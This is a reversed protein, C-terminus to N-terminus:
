PNIMKENINPDVTVQRTGLPIGIRPPRDEGEPEAQGWVPLLM